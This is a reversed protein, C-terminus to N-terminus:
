QSVSLSVLLIVPLSKRFLISFILAQLYRRLYSYTISGSRTLIFTGVVSMFVLRDRKRKGRLSFYILLYRYVINFIPLVVSIRMIHLVRVSYTPFRIKLM